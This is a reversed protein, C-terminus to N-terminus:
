PNLNSNKRHRRLTILGISVAVIAVILATDTIAPTLEPKSHTIPTTIPTPLPTQSPLPLLPEIKVLYINGDLPNGLTGVGLVALGGDQTEIMSSYYGSLESDVPPVALNMVWQQNGNSDTKIIRNYHLSLSAFGEDSTQIKVSANSYYDPYIQPTPISYNENWQINGESDTKLITSVFGGGGENVDTVWYGSIEYGGDSTQILSKATFFNITKAWQGDGSSNLKYFTSPQFTFQYSWGLDM